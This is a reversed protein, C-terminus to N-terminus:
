SDQTENGITSILSQRDEAAQPFNPDLALVAEILELAEAERGM